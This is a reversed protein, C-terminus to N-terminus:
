HDNIIRIKSKTKIKRIKKTNKIRLQYDKQFLLNYISLSNLKQHDQLALKLNPKRFPLNSIKSKKM